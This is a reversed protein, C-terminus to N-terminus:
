LLLSQLMAKPKKAGFITIPLFGIWVLVLGWFEGDTVDYTHLIEPWSLKSNLIFTEFILTAAFWFLGILAAQKFRTIKLKEWVFLAFSTWLIVGTLCSLQHALPETLGLLKKLVVERLAGNLFALVFLGLWALSPRM